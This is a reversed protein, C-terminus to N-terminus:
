LEDVNLSLYENGKVITLMTGIVYAFILFKGAPSDKFINGEGVHLLSLIVPFSWATLIMSFLQRKRQRGKQRAMRIAKLDAEMIQIAKNLAKMAPPSWGEAHAQLLTDAMKDFKRMQIQHKWLKLAEAMGNGLGIEQIVGRLMPEMQTDMGSQLTLEMAKILGGQDPIRAIIQRLCAVLDELLRIRQNGHKVQILVSPLIGILVWSSLFLLENHTLVFLLGASLLSCFWLLLTHSTKWQVGACAAERRIRDLRDEWYDRVYRKGFFGNKRSVAACYIHYSLACWFTLLSASILSTIM